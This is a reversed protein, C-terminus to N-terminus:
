TTNKKDLIEIEQAKMREASDMKAKEMQDQREMREKEDAELKKTM